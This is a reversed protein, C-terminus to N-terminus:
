AESSDIAPVDLSQPEPFVPPIGGFAPCLAKHNCWNCLTSKKPLFQKNEVAAEIAAWLAKVKREIALLDAEDPVYRLIEKNGLYMVQLLAPMQGTSRWMVLAYFRMQFMAKAEFGDRPSKGTKYDVIRVAGDPAKDIRDVFGKLSLSDDVRHEILLERAYPDFRAPDEILSQASELWTHETLGEQEILALVEPSEKSMQQWHEPLLAKAQAVTRGPREVDFLHELVTHVLTGRATASTPPEPLRDIVRFRYLLACQM